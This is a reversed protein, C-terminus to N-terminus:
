CWGAACATPVVRGHLVDTASVYRQADHKNFHVWFQGNLDTPVELGPVAAARVGAEDTRVLIAGSNTVVRLMDMTLSPVLTDQPTWSWRYAASSATASPNISFLGRGAAAQEIPMINRLLGPFTVLFPRPIRPRRRRFRDAAGDGSADRPAPTASGAQGVM